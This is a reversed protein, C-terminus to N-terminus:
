RFPAADGDMLVVLQGTVVAADDEGGAKRRLSVSGSMCNWM